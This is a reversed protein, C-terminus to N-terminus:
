ANNVQSTFTSEFIKDANGVEFGDRRHKPKIKEQPLHNFEPLVKRQAFEVYSGATKRSVGNQFHALVKSAVSSSQLLLGDRSTKIIGGSDNLKIGIDVLFENFQGLQNYPTPLEQISITYHNLYYRNLIVWAAYESEALLNEYEELSPIDWLPSQFFHVVEKFDDLNLQDIPDSHVTNTYRYIISQALNSLDKVRLQSIFVRPLHEKPPSYWFADLKKANFRYFDRKKFGHHLFIKELSNIGLNKVDLTRFAIHDNVIQHKSRIIQHQIMANTIKSVEPVREAYPEFLGHLIWDITSTNQLNM